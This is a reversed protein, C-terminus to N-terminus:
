PNIFLHIEQLGVDSPFTGFLLAVLCCSSDLPEVVSLSLRSYLAQPLWVVKGNCDDVSKSNVSELIVSCKSCIRFRMEPKRCCFDALSVCGKYSKTAEFASLIDGSSYSYKLTRTKLAIWFTLAVDLLCTKGFLDAVTVVSDCFTPVSGGAFCCHRSCM